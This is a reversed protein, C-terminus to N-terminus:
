RILIYSPSTTCCKTNFFDQINRSNRNGECLVVIDMRHEQNISRIERITPYLFRKHSLKRIHSVGTKALTLASIEHYGRLRSWESRSILWHAVPVTHQLLSKVSSHIMNKLERIKVPRWTYWNEVQLKLKNACM